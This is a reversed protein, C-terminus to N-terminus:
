VTFAGQGDGYVSWVNFVDGAGLEKQDSNTFGGLRYDGEPKGEVYEVVWAPVFKGKEYEYKVKKGVPFASM